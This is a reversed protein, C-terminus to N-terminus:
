NGPSWILTMGSGDYVATNADWTWGTGFTTWLDDGLQLMLRTVVRNYEGDLDFRLQPPGSTDRTMQLFQLDAGVVDTFQYLLRFRRFAERDRREAGDWEDNVGEGTRREPRNTRALAFELLLADTVSGIVYIEHHNTREEIQRDRTSDELHEWEMTASISQSTMGVIMPRDVGELLGSQQLNWELLCAGLLASRHRLHDRQEDDPFRHRRTQPVVAGGYLEARLGRFSATQVDAGVTWPITEHRVHEELQQGRAEVLGYSANIFTDLTGVKLGASGWGDRRYRLLAKVDVDNKEWGPHFRLTADLGDVFLDRHAFDFRLQHRDTTRDQRRDYMLGIHGNEWAPIETRAQLRNALEFENLSQIWMRVGHRQQAWRQETAMPFDPVAIDFHYRPYLGDEFRQLMPGDSDPRGSRHYIRTWMQDWDDQLTYGATHSPPDDPDPDDAPEGFLTTALLFITALATM